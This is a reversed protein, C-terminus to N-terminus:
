EAKAEKKRQAFSKYLAYITRCVAFDAVTFPEPGFVCKSRMYSEVTKVFADPMEGDGTTEWMEKLDRMDM